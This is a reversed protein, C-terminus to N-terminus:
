FERIPFAVFGDDDKFIARLLVSDPGEGGMTCVMMGQVFVEKDYTM